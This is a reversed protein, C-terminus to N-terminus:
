PLRDKLSDQNDRGIVLISLAKNNKSLPPYDNIHYPEFNM